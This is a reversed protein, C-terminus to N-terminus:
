KFTNLRNNPFHQNSISPRIILSSRRSLKLKPDFQWIPHMKIQEVEEITQLSGSELDNRNELQNLNIKQKPHDFKEYILNLNNSNSSYNLAKWCGERLGLDLFFLLCPLLLGSSAYAWWRFDALREPTIQLYCKNLYMAPSQFQKLNSPSPNSGFLNSSFHFSNFLHKHNIQGQHFNFPLCLGHTLTALIYPSWTGVAIICSILNIAVVLQEGQYATFWLHVTQKPSTTQKSQTLNEMQQHTQQQPMLNSQSKPNLENTQKSNSDFCKLEYNSYFKTGFKKNLLSSHNNELEPLDSLHTQCYYTPLRVFEIPQNNLNLFISENTTPQNNIVLTQCPYNIISNTSNNELNSQNTKMNSLNQEASSKSILDYNTQSKITNTQNNIEPISNLNFNSIPRTICITGHAPCQYIPPSELHSFIPLILSSRNTSNPNLHNESILTEVTQSLNNLYIQKFDLSNSSKNLIPMYTQNPNLNSNDMNLLSYNNYKNNSCTPHYALSPNITTNSTIPEYMNKANLQNQNSRISLLAILMDSSYTRLRQLGQLQFGVLIICTILPLAYAIVTRIILFNPDPLVCITSLGTSKMTLNNLLQPPKIQGTYLRIQNKDSLALQGIAQLSAVLWPSGIKLWLAPRRKASALYFIPNKLRLYADLSAFFAQLFNLNCFLTDLYISYFCFVHVYSHM